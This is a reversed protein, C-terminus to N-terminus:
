DSKKRRKKDSLFVTHIGMYTSSLLILGAGVILLVLQLTEDTGIAALSIMVGFAIGVGAIFTPNMGRLEDEISVVKQGCNSCHTDGILIPHNCNPCREINPVTPPPQRKQQSM